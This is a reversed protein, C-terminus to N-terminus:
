AVKLGDFGRCENPFAACVRARSASRRQGGLNPHALWISAAVLYKTDTVFADITAKM